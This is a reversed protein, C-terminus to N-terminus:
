PLVLNLPFVQPHKHTFVHNLKQVGPIMHVHLLNVLAYTGNACKVGADETHNCEQIGWGNHSCEEIAFETGDCKLNNLWVQGCGQGFHGKHSAAIAPGYGLQRCVVQADNLDWGDDCVTGWEGNYYVEVRGEYQTSGNVLRVM